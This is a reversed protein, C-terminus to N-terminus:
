RRRGIWGVGAFITTTSRGREGARHLGVDHIWGRGAYQQRLGFELAIFRGVRWWGALEGGIVWTPDGVRTRSRDVRWTHLRAGASLAGRLGSRKALSLRYGVSGLVDTDVAVVEDDLRSPLVMTEAAVLIGPGLTVGVSGLAAGDLGGPRISLGGGAFAHLTAIPANPEPEPEPEPKPETPPTPASAARTKPPLRRPESLPLPDKPKVEATSLALAAGVAQDVPSEDTTDVAEAPIRVAERCEGGRGVVLADADRRLCVQAGGEPSRVIPRGSRSLGALWQGIWPADREGQASVVLADDRCAAGHVVTPEAARLGAELRHLVELAALSDSGPAVHRRVTTGDDIVVSTDDRGVEIDVTVDAPGTTLCGDQELVRVAAAGRLLSVRADNPDGDVRVRVAPSAAPADVSTVPAPAAARPPPEAVPTSAIISALVPAWAAM